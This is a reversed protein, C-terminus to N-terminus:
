GQLACQMCPARESSVTRSRPLTRQRQRTRQPLRWPLSSPLTEVTTTTAHPTTHTHAQTHQEHTRTPRHAAEARCRLQGRLATQTCNLCTRRVPDSGVTAVSQRQRRWVVVVVRVCLQVCVTPACEACRACSPVDDRVCGITGVLARAAAGAQGCGDVARCFPVLWGRLVRSTCAGCSM